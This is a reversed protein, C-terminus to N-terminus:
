WTHANHSMWKGQVRMVQEILDRVCGRGGPKDSIFHAIELVDHCADSPACPLGVTQLIRMDPIDDGMYSCRAPDLGEAMLQQFVTWKDSSALHVEDVGLYNFIDRVSESTGGTIVIVRYGERVALQTSFTDKTNFTRFPEGLKTLAVSGDTYVGDVDFVFTDITPLIEKYTPKAM